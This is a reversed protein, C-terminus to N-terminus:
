KASLIRSYLRTLALSAKTAFRAQERDRKSLHYEAWGDEANSAENIAAALAARDREAFTLRWAGNWAALVAPCESWDRCEVASREAVTLQLRM